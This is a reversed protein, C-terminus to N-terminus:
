RPPMEMCVGCVRPMAYFGTFQVDTSLYGERVPEPRGLDGGLYKSSSDPFVTAVVGGAGLRNQVALAAAFNAGSSIGVGLGLQRGLKQAMLIADGDHVSVVADLKSLNLIPPIFEGGIGQIRHAGVKYGTALTPSEAPEVPHIKIGPYHARLFRGVGMITGGTGVGAVFADPVVDQISLQARIEPGTSAEHAATNAPNSFQQPLFVDDREEALREALRIAGQLGGQDRGVLVVHAGLGAAQARVEQGACEPMFVTVPHGLARGVAAFSMGACGSTAEVITDGPRIQGQLYARRLVYLALRDKGSGTMNLQEYKAYITRPEGRVTFDLALLPTNGILRALAAFRSSSLPDLTLSHSM